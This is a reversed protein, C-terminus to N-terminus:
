KQKIVVLSIDDQIISDGIYNCLDKMFKGIIKETPFLAYKKITECVANQGFQIGERNEAETIGDSYLVMLDGPELGIEIQGIKDTIDEILGVYFGLDMTDIIEVQGSTRILIVSEHQGTVVFKKNKYTILALTMNRDEKIRHINAYLVRNIINMLVAPNTIKMEAMTRIVTQAMLMIVGSSLGHGTVDGIGITITDDIRIVDYYDGGVEDATMMICSIELLHVSETEEVSPLVMTQIKRAINVEAQLRMSEDRLREAYIELKKNSLTIENVLGRLKKRANLNERFFLDIVVASIFPILFLSIITMVTTASPDLSYFRKISLELDPLLFHILFIIIVEVFSIVMHKFRSVEFLAALLPYIIVVFLVGSTSVNTLIIIFFMQLEFIYITIRRVFTRYGRASLLLCFLYAFAATVQVAILLGPHPITFGVLLAGSAAVFTFFLNLGNVQRALQTVQIDDQESTGLSLLSEIVKM